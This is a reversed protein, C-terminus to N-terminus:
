NSPKDVTIKLRRELEPDSSPGPSLRKAVDAPTLFDIGDNAEHRELVVLEPRYGERKLYVTHAADRGVELTAPTQGVLQGDLYIQAGPPDSEVGVNQVAACALAGCALVLVLLLEARM